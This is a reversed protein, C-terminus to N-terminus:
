AEVLKNRVAYRVLATSSSLNLKHMITARHTEATKVSIELLRAVEKSSHGEAILQVVSRQRSTLTSGSHTRRKLFSCLLAQSIHSPFFPKHIALSEIAEILYRRANTKLVYGRVGVKLSNEILTENDHMTFLLVETKPLRSRMQRTVELGNILPLSYDLVAIDPTTAIAKLIAEKGDAAEAVVQWGPQAELIARLGERVIYHDDAVLIRIM